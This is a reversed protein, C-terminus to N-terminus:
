QFNKENDVNIEATEIFKEISKTTKDLIEEYSNKSKEVMIKFENLEERLKGIEIEKEDKYNIALSRLEKFKSSLKEFDNKTNKIKKFLDFYDDVMQIATILLLKNEGINGLNKKLDNYKLDLHAALSKLNEEQGDDCSLLYDKTNFKINVNAM